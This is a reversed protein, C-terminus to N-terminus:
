VRERCSARGIQSHRGGPEGRFVRAGDPFIVIDGYRLTPDQLLAALPNERKTPDPPATKAPDSPATKAPVSPPPLRLVQPGDLRRLAPMAPPLVVSIGPAPAAARSGANARVVEWFGSDEASAPTLVAWALSAAAASAVWANTPTHTLSRM